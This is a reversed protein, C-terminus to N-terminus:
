PFNVLSLLFSGQDGVLITSITRIPQYFSHEFKAGLIFHPGVQPCIQNIYLFIPFDQFDEQLFSSSGQYKTYLM